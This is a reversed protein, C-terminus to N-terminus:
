VSSRCSRLLSLQPPPWRAGRVKVGKFNNEVLQWVDGQYSLNRWTQNRIHGGSEHCICNNLYWGLLISKSSAYSSLLKLDPFKSTNVIPKGHEDHFAPSSSPEVTFSDCEQWGDDIGARQYGLDLLSVPATVAATSDCDRAPRQLLMADIQSRMKPDDIDGQFFNWSRWGM